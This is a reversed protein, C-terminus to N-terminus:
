FYNIFIQLEAPNNGFGNIEANIGCLDGVRDDREVVETDGVDVGVDVCRWHVEVVGVVDVIVVATAVAVVVNVVGTGAGGNSGARSGAVQAIVGPM